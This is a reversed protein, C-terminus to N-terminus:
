RARLLAEFEEPPVPKSYLYGQIYDCGADALLKQQGKTEVGEAIVELGLKHAMVIIAESLAMDNADVELNRVFAQDIKLYDIDFKKIYSLSSYGTGFDDIAVQIGAARLSLLKDMVETDAELLLGETIEVIINDGSLELEHLHSLWKEAFNRGEVRFQVPSMNVSIKFDSSFQGSWHRAWRASEKFVWDGIANILCTEEALVIFENPGVLGRKPHQWRLLAEAKSIRGTKVDVIPQFYVKFQNAALAGRLDNALQLRTHAADQLSQTFYSFAKRGKKKAAYMAQDANKMLVDIDTTDNPYLTIGISASLHIVDDGLHYTEALKEIIINAIDEINSDDSLESLIIAFEDGGLRAVTDSDRVCSRIRSAAEQLLIDGVDHGLTDNVERFQDLDILFLALSLGTRKSKIIEQSLRDHLMNRNPLGTLTDFNAQKWIIEESQKKESIDSFLAVYCHASGDENRITNITLWKAYIEGNKRKDWIEGQWKGTSNLEHWMDKFFARDHRGSSFMSHNKGQVEDFSFGTIRSFAPNIAIIEDDANTVSMGESSNQFVSSALKLEEEAKKRETIDTIISVFGTLDDAENYQYDWDVQVDIISGNKTKDQAYFPVPSPRNEILYFYYDRIRKREGDNCAVDWVAKGLLEGEDYGHMASHAKNSLTIIGDLDSEQIGNPITEVLIRYRAESAKLAFEDQKLETLDTIIGFSGLFNYEEDFVARPSTLTYIREGSKNAFSLEFRKAIGRKRLKMQEKMLGKNDDHVFDILPKGIMEENAYGLMECFRANVYTFIYGHNVEGFGENMTDLLEKYRVQSAQLAEEREIRLGADRISACVLVGDDTNVSKLQIDVPLKHGDKHLAVVERTQDICYTRPNATFNARYTVHNKRFESPILVEVKKGLIEDRSYGFLYETRNNIYIITSDEGVLVVADPSIELAQWQTQTLSKDSM